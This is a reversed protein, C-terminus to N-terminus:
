ALPKGEALAIIEQEEESVSYEIKDYPRKPDFFVQKSANEMAEKLNSEQIRRMERALFDLVSQRSKKEGRQLELTQCIKLVRMDKEGKLAAKIARIGKQMLYACRQYIAMEKNRIEKHKEARIDSTPDKEAPIESEASKKAPVFKEYYFKKLDDFPKDALINGDRVGVVLHKAEKQGLLDLNIDIPGPQEISLTILAPDKPEGIFFMMPGNESLKVSVKM